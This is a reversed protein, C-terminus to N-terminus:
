VNHNKSQWKEKLEAKLKAQDSPEARWQRAKYARRRETGRQMQEQSRKIVTKEKGYEEAADMWEAFQQLLQQHAIESTKPNDQKPYIGCFVEVNYAIGKKCKENFPHKQYTPMLQAPTRGRLFHYAFWGEQVVLELEVAHELLSRRMPSKVGWSLAEKYIYGIEKRLSWLKIRLHTKSKM